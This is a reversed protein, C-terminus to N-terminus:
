GEELKKLAALKDRTQDSVFLDDSIAAIEEARQWEDQLLSLEGEMARRESDEHSAMELALRAAKPLSALAHETGTPYMRVRKEGQAAYRAFLTAPDGAQGMIEVASDVEDRSAGDANIAPLLKSAAHLAADGILLSTLEAAANWKSAQIKRGNSLPVAQDFAPHYPVRLAWDDGSQVLGIRRLQKQRIPVAEDHGPLTLRARIRRADYATRVMSVVNWMGWSSGAIIGTAPGLIIFGTAAVVAAGSYILHRTRRRGFQDGYRWAAM